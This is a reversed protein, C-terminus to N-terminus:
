PAAELAALTSGAYIPRTAPFGVGPAWPHVTWGDILLGIVSVLGAERNAEPTLGYSGCAWEHTVPKREWPEATRNAPAPGPRDGPLDAHASDSITM